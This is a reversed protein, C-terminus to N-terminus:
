LLIRRMSQITNRETNPRPSILFAGLGNAIQPPSGLGIEVIRGILCVPDWVTKREQRSVREVVEQTVVKTAHPYVPVLGCIQEM